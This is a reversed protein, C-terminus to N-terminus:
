SGIRKAMGAISAALPAHPVITAQAAHYIDPKGAWTDSAVRNDADLEHWWSGHERDILHEEAYRWWTAQWRPFREDGTTQELAAAAAIAETVVWHMRHRVVPTGDFDVTYVIGDAGDVAWGDHVARDFLAVADGTLWSPPRDGASQVAAAVHLCLRSWEFLHGITVGYPRFPHAPDDRNYDPLAEWEPTYHEPLRWDHSRAFGEVVATTMRLARQRWRPEGTADSAALLAEVLHMNANVGRYPESRSWTRDLSERHLGAGDEWFRHDVITLADDLLAAAGPRGATAASAAALVVFAHAYAEKDDRPAGNAALGAFWGGHEGDRLPGTLAGIGHDVLGGVDPRGLLQALAFVHTMRCTVYTEVDAGDQPQGTTSLSAFGHPHVSPRAFAVLRDLEADLWAEGPPADGGSPTAGSPTAQVPTSGTHPTADDRSTM